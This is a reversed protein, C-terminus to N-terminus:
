HNEILRAVVPKLIYNDGAKIVSRSANFDVILSTTKGAVVTFSQVLRVINNRGLITLNVVTGDALKATASKVYLRVETYRGAALSTLGLGATNGTKALNIIDVSVPANIKLTEWHDVPKLNSPTGSISSSNNANDGPNGLYALHVEVKTVSLVLSTIDQPGNNQSNLRGPPSGSDSNQNNQNGNNFQNGNDQARTPLVRTPEPTLPLTRTVNPRGLGPPTEPPDIVAFSLLGRQYIPITNSFNQDSNQPGMTDDANVTDTIESASNLDVTDTSAKPTLSLRQSVGYIIVPIIVAAILIIYFLNRNSQGSKNYRSIKKNKKM